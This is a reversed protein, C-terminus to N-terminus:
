YTAAVRRGETGAGDSASREGAAVPGVGRGSGVAVPVVGANHTAAVSEDGAGRVADDM